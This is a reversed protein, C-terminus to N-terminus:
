ACESGQSEEISELEAKISDIYHALGEIAMGIQEPAPEDDSGSLLPHSLSYALASAGELKLIVDGIEAPNKTNRNM